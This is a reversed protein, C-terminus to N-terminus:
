HTQWGLFHIEMLKGNCPNGPLAPSFEFVILRQGDDMDLVLLTQLEIIECELGNLTFALNIAQTKKTKM